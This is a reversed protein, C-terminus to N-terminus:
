SYGIILPVGGGGARSRSNHGGPRQMHPEKLRKQGKDTHFVGM